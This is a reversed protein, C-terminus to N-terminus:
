TRSAATHTVDLAMGEEATNGPLGEAALVVESGFSRRRWLM